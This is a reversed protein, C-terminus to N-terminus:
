HRSIVVGRIFSTVFTTGDFLINTIMGSCTSPNLISTSSTGTECHTGTYGAVCSCTYQNVADTCTAGNLCPNSSCEDIDAVSIMGMKLVHVFVLSREFNDDDEIDVVTDTLLINYQFYICM